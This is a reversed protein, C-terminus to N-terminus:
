AAIEPSGHGAGHVTRLRFSRLAMFALWGLPGFM